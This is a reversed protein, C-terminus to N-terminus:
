RAELFIVSRIGQGCWRGSHRVSGFDRANRRAHLTRAHMEAYWAVLAPENQRDMQQRYEPSGDFFTVRAHQM